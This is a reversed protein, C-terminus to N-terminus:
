VPRGAPTLQPRTGTLGADRLGALRVDAPRLAWPGQAPLALQGGRRGHLPRDDEPLEPSLLGGPVARALVEGADAAGYHCGGLIVQVEFDMQPHEMFYQRPKRETM